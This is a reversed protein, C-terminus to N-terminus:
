EVQRTAVKVEELKDFYAQVRNIYLSDDFPKVPHKNIWLIILANVLIKHIFVYYPEFDDGYGEYLWQEQEPTLNQSEIFYALDFHVDGMSAYEWDAIFINKNEDEIFNFLWLDNHCPASNDINKLFLNIKKFYKDLVEIKRGNEKVMQRYVKFRRALNNAPFNLRSNHIEILQKGIKVLTSKDLAPQKGKIFETVLEKENDEYVKPSFTFKNLIKYDIKHNFEDYRKEKIFYNKEDDFFTKNTFGQNPILKKM